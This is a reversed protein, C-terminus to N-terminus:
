TGSALRVILRPWLQRDGPFAMTVEILSPLIDRNTWEDQWVAPEEPKALGFYRFRLSQIGEHLTMTEGQNSAPLPRFLTRKTILDILGDDRARTEISIAYLGGTELAGDSAGVLAIRTPGGAFAVVPKSVSEVAVVAPRAGGLLHLLHSQVAGIATTAEMRRVLGDLQHVTKLAGIVYTSILALISLAVLLEAVTFGADGIDSSAATM